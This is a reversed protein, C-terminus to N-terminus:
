TRDDPYIYGHERAIDEQKKDTGYVDLQDQLDEIQAEYEQRQEEMSRIQGSKVGMSIFQYLIVGLLLVVLLTGAIVVATVLKKLKEEPMNEFM